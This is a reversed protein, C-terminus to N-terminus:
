NRKLLTKFLSLVFRRPKDYVVFFVIILLGLVPLFYKVVFGFVSSVKPAEREVDLLEQDTDVMQTNETENSLVEKEATENSASMDLEGKETTKKDQQISDASGTFVGNSFTGVPNYIRLRELVSHDYIDLINWENKSLIERAEFAKISESLEARMHEKQKVKKLSGCTAFLMLLPLLLTLITKSALAKNGRLWLYEPIADFSPCEKIRENSDIMGNLNKDPSFDRHGLIKIGSIDQYQKFFKFARDICELIAEKQELTRTDVAKHYNDKAVGGQYSIHVSPTNYGGVGNSIKALPVGEIITGDTLIYFHYGDEKWGLSRWYKQIAEWSGYGASCHIVIYKIFRMKNSVQM